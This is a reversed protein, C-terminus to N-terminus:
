PHRKGIPGERPAGEREVAGHREVHLLEPEGHLLRDEERGPVRRAEDALLAPPLDAGPEPRVQDVQVRAETGPLGPDGALKGPGLPRFLSELNPPHTTPDPGPSRDLFSALGTARRM